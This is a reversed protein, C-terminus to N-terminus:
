TVVLTIFFDAKRLQAGSDRERIFLFTRARVLLVVFNQQSIDIKGKGESLWGSM